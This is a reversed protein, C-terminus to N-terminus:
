LVEEADCCWFLFFLVRAVSTLTHCTIRQESFLSCFLWVREVPECMRAYLWRMWWTCMKRDSGGGSRVLISTERNVVARVGGVKRQSPPQLKLWIEKYVNTPTDLDM